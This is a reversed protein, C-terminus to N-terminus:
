AQLTKLNQGKLYPFFNLSWICAPALNKHTKDLAYKNHFEFNVVEDVDFKEYELIERIANRISREDDIILVKPM